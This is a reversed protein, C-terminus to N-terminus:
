MNESLKDRWWTYLVATLRLMSSPKDSCSFPNLGSRSSILNMDSSATRSYSKRPTKKPQGKIIM